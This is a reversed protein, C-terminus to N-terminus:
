LHESDVDVHLLQGGARLLQLAFPLVLPKGLDAALAAPYVPLASNTALSLFSPSSESGLSIPRSDFLLRGDAFPYSTRTGRWRELSRSPSSVMRRGTCGPRRTIHLFSVESTTRPFRFWPMLSPGINARHVLFPHVSHLSTFVGLWGGGWTHSVAPPWGRPPPIPGQNQSENQWLTM